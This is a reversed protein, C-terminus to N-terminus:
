KQKAFYTYFYKWTTTKGVDTSVDVFPEMSLVSRISWLPLNALPRDSTIRVGAGTARNEIRVDYDSVAKGFGQVPFSVRDQGELVKRYFIQNGQIEAFAPDPPRPSQIQFPVTIVFDPGTPAGDLVLFNHNYQNTEIPLRGTNRLTHEIVLEPKKPTLLLRKLYIYGYGSAPDDVEQTFEIWNKDTEVSWRGTSVIDYQNYASYNADDKKRLVGVGIKVFTEGPKATTYGQPRQFEEAPGTIGSQASVIIDADKYIFDRVSPDFGTFWPGYYRHGQHELSAIVGSWDFRTSRYFGREPDPLYVRARILGNSIEASPPQPQAASMAVPREALALGVVSTLCALALTRPAM